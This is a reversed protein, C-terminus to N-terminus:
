RITSGKAPKKEPRGFPTFARKVRETDRLTCFPNPSRSEVIRDGTPKGTRSDPRPKLESAWAVFSETQRETFARQCKNCPYAGGCNQRIRRRGEMDELERSALSIQREFTGDKFDEDFEKETGNELREQDKELAVLSNVLTRWQPCPRGTAKITDENIERLGDILQDRINGKPWWYGSYGDVPLKLNTVVSRKARLRALKQELWPVGIPPSKSMRFYSSSYVESKHERATGQSKVVNFQDKFAYKLCYSIGEQNAQQLYVLGHKWLSWHLRRELLNQNHGLKEKTKFCRFKGLSTLDVNTFIILHWHVRGKKSGNEGCCLFRVEGDKKYWYKIQRRLNKLFASVDGYQFVKSGDINHQTESNYTLNIAMTFKSTNSEAVARAIWDNKRAKLCENCKRCVVINGDIEIKNSCM